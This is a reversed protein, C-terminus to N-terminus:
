LRISIGGNLGIWLLMETGKTNDSWLKYPVYITGWKGDNLFDTFYMNVSPGLILSFRKGFKYKLNLDLKTLLNIETSEFYDIFGDWSDTDEFDYIDESEYIDDFTEEDLIELNNVSLDINLSLKKGLNFNTGFGLGTNFIIQNEYYTLGTKFITYLKQIGLKYSINLYIADGCLIEVEGYGGNKVINILGIPFGGELDEVINILGIQVGKLKRTVNILGIQVGKVSDASINAIGAINIGRSYGNNVNFIGGIQVGKMDGNNVNFIGGLQLGTFYKGNVNIIGGTQVGNFHKANVNFIGSSQVGRVSGNNFNIIGGAQFGNVNSKTGINFIGGFQVGSIDGTNINAIGGMEFASVGGNVGFLANISFKNNYKYSTVGHSGLPYFFSIQFSSSERNETITEKKSLENNNVEIDNPITDSVKIDKTAITDTQSFVATGSIIILILILKIKKIQM